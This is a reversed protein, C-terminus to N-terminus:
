YVIKCELNYKNPLIEQKVRGFEDFELTRSKLYNTRSNWTREFGLKLPGRLILDISPISFLGTEFLRQASLTIPQTSEMDSNTKKKGLSDPPPSKVADKDKSQQKGDRNKYKKIDEKTLKFYKIKREIENEDYYIRGLEPQLSFNYKSFDDNVKTNIILPYLSLLERQGGHIYMDGIEKGASELNGEFGYQYTQSFGTNEATAKIIKGSSDYKLTFVGIANSASESYTIATLLGKDNYSYSATYDKCIKKSPNGYLTEIHDRYLMSPIKLYHIQEIFSAKKVRDMLSNSQHYKVAKTKLNIEKHLINNFYFEVTDGTKINGTSPKEETCAVLLLVFVGFMTIKVPM